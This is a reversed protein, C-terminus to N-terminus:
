GNRHKGALSNLRETGRRVDDILSGVDDGRTAAKWGGSIIAKALKQPLGGSLLLREVTRPTIEGGEVASKVSVLRAQPNAPIAVLSVEFLQIDKLVRRGNERVADRTAFGISLGLAGDLALSRAESGRTTRSLRGKMRLGVRDEGADTWV